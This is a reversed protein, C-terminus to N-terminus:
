RGVDLGMRRAWSPGFTGEQSRRWDTKRGWTEAKMGNEATLGVRRVWSKWNRTGTEKGQCYLDWNRGSSM